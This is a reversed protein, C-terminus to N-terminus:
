CSQRCLDGESERRRGHQRPSRPPPAESFHTRRAMRWASVENGRSVLTGHMGENGRARVMILTPVHEQYEAKTSTCFLAVADAAPRRQAADELAKQLEAVLLYVGDEAVAGVISGVAGAAAAATPPQDGDPGPEAGALRLLPPLMHSLHSHIAPGPVLPGYRAILHREDGAGYTSLKVGAPDGFFPHPEPTPWSHQYPLLGKCMRPQLCGHM